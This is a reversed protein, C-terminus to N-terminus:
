APCRPSATSPRRTPSSSPDDLLSPEASSTAAVGLPSGVPVAVRRESGDVYRVTLLGDGIGDPAATAPEGVAAPESGQDPETELTASPVSVDVSALPSNRPIVVLHDFDPRPGVPTVVPPRDFPSAPDARGVM